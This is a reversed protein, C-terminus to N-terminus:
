RDLVKALRSGPLLDAVATADDFSDIDRLPRGDAVSMGLEALRARQARGTHPTSMPVRDFVARDARNLGILWYGGDTADAVVADHTTLANVCHQFDAATAQPTDMGAIVMPEGVDAFANALREALGDGRQPVIDFGPPVWHDEGDLVVIRRHTAVEGMVDITDLLAAEAIAAALEPSCPPCLRTKVRGPVPTKAIVAVAAVSM